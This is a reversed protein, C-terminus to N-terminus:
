AHLYVLIMVRHHHLTTDSHLGLAQHSWLFARECLHLMEDWRM